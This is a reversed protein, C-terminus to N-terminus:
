QTSPWLVECDAFSLGLTYIGIDNDWKTFIHGRTQKLVVVINLNRIPHKWQNDSIFPYTHLISYGSVRWAKADVTRSM